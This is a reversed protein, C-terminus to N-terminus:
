VFILFVGQFVGFIVVAQAELYSLWGILMM